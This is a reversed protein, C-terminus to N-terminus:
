HSPVEGHNFNAGYHFSGHNDRILFRWGPNCVILSCPSQIIVYRRENVTQNSAMLHNDYSVDPKLFAEPVISLTTPNGPLSPTM